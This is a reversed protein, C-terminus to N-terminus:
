SLEKNKDYDKMYNNSAEAHRYIAQFIGATIGKLIILLMDFDLLLELEVKTKKVWKLM